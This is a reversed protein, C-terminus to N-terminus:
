RFVVCVPKDLRVRSGTPTLAGSHRDIAFSALDGSAQGAVVLWRSTPDIAFSRPEKVGASTVATRHLTGDETIAFVAISDHGRNSVYLHRGSADCAIEATSDGEKPKTFPLTAVTQKASPAQHRSLQFSTVTCDLENNVFLWRGNPSFTLHRPGAGPALSIRSPEPAPKGQEIAFRLLEDTGLDCAFADQGGPALYISHMHPGEQRGANPGHGSNRFLYDPEGLSGDRLIPLRHVTGSGYCAVYAASAKDDITVHCAGSGPYRVESLRRLSGNAEIRYASAEGDGMEHVAVLLNRKRDIALFSPNPAEAVLDPASIAGTETDLRAHYIGKSGNGSTYTGLYFDVEHSLAVALIPLLLM